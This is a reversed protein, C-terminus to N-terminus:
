SDLSIAKLSCIDNVSVAKMWNGYPCWKLDFVAGYSHLICLALYADPKGQLEGENNSDCNMSWLQIINPHPDQKGLYYLQDRMQCNEDTDPFGGVAIYDMSCSPEGKMSPLPCWDMAWVSLGANLM